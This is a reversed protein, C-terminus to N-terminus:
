HQPKVQREDVYTAGIRKLMLPRSSDADYRGPGMVSAGRLRLVFASLLGIPGVGAVLVRMLLL